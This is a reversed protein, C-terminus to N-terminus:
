LIATVLSTLIDNMLRGRFNVVVANRYMNIKEMNSDDIRGESSPAYIILATADKKLKFIHELDEKFDAWHVLLVKAKEVSHVSEKATIRLLNKKRFIKSDILMSELDDQQTKSFIAIQSSSLGKGLRFWVPLIGKIILYLSYGSTIISAIITLGGIIAFFPADFFHEIEVLMMDETFTNTVCLKRIPM